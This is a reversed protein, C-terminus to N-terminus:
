SKAERMLIEFIVYKEWTKEVFFSGQVHHFLFMSIALQHRHTSIQNEYLPTTTDCTKGTL